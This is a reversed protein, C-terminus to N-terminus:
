AKLVADCQTDVSFATIYKEEMPIWRTAFNEYGDIGNRAIIREKQLPKEIDLFIKLDFIDEFKNHTSYAGEIIILNEPNIEKKGNFDMLKCSFKKYSFKKKAKIPTIVEEIFRDYDLNGGAQALREATRLNPPLFFDDIQVVDAGFHEALEAALTTKGAAARGDIAIIKMDKTILNIANELNNTM